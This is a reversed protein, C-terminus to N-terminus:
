EDDEDEDEWYEEEEEKEKLFERYEEIANDYDEENCIATDEIILSSYQREIHMYVFELDSVTVEVEDAFHQVIKRMVLEQYVNNFDPLIPLGTVEDWIEGTPTIETLSILYFLNRLFYRTEDGNLGLEFQTAPLFNINFNAIPNAVKEANNQAIKENLGNILDQQLSDFLEWQLITDLFALAKEESFESAVLLKPMVDLCYEEEIYDRKEKNYDYNDRFETM